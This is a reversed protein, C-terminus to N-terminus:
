GDMQWVVICTNIKINLFSALNLNLFINRKTGHNTRSLKYKTNGTDKGREVIGKDYPATYHAKNM